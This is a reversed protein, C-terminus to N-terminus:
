AHAVGILLLLRNQHVRPPHSHPHNTHTNQTLPCPTRPPPRAQKPSFHPLCITCAHTPESIAHQKGRHTAKNYILQTCSGEAYWMGATVCLAFVGGKCLGQWRGVGRLGGQYTGRWQEDQQQQHPQSHAASRCPGCWAGPATQVTRVGPVGARCMSHPMRSHTSQIHIGM